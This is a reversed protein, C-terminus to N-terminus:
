RPLAGLSRRVRRPQPSRRGAERRRGARRAARGARPASVCPHGDLWFRWAQELGRRIGVRPGTAVRRGDRRPRGRVRLEGEVLDTGDHARTLGLARAVCGPGRMLREAAQVGRRRRAAELGELPELARVLVAAAGGERECVLNLCHHMGYTFYVYARGPPGFMVANRATRGRFAHSAPDLPGRYAEVEVIRGAVHVGGVDSELVRGLLARAVVPARRAYFARPLVPGAAPARVARGRRSTLSPRM